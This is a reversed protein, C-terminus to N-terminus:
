SAELLVHLNDNRIAQRRVFSCSGAFGLGWEAQMLVSGPLTCIRALEWCSRALQLNM